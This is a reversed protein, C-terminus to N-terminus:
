DRRIRIKLPNQQLPEQLVEIDLDSENDLIGEVFDKFNVTKPQTIKKPNLKKIFGLEEFNFGSEKLSKKLDPDLTDLNLPGNASPANEFIGLREAAEKIAPNQNWKLYELKISESNAIQKYDKNIVSRIKNDYDENKFFRDLTNQFKTYEVYDTIQQSLSRMLFVSLITPPAFLITGVAFWSAVFGTTGGACCAIVAFEPSVSDLAIYELRIKCKLLILKLLLRLKVFIFKLIRARLERRKLFVALQIVFDQIGEALQYQYDSGGRTNFGIRYVNRIAAKKPSLKNTSKSPEILRSKDIIDNRLRKMSAKESLYDKLYSTLKSMIFCSILFFDVTDLVLRGTFRNIYM